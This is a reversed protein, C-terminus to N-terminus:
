LEIYDELKVSYIIKRIRKANMKEKLAIEYLDLQKKYLDKLELLNNVNDTKYDVITFLNDKVFLLDIVGSTLIKGSKLSEDYYNSPIEFYIKMERYVKDSLLLEDYIESSLYSFINDLSIMKIDEKKLFGKELMNDLENKLNKLDYKKIPLLEFIKHYTTGLTSSSIGNKLFKPFRLYSKKKKIDSVSLYRPIKSSEFELNIIDNFSDIDFNLKKNISEGLVSEDIVNANKIDIIINANSSYVKPIVLSLDRLVDGDKHRLLCAIIIDLYSKVDKLYFESIVKKDGMKSSIKTVMSQLNSSYGTIIIKEKSRTLAVYLIRLEESLMKNKEIEKFVMIPVSEYKLKYYNDKINCVFGLYDNIMFDSRLDKFNFNKGTESLFVYPYELGKSKHITTILVNDGKSLPNIGELSDKNLLVSELYTIFSHLTSNKKGEFSVAHKIMQELNKQRKVGGKFASLVPIINYEKYIKSLLSSINITYSAEKLMNIKELEKKVIINNSKLLSEYLFMNKNDLRVSTIVDFDIGIVDSTLVSLLSIDDYLNDIVKLFNIILKVEYNDFYELSSEMYVSINKKNLARKFIESNTLSRLLIVIDSAKISRFSGTKNDYVKEGSNLLEHIKEAVIIAEKETKSIDDEKEEDKKGDILIVETNLNDKEKFSAGLYLTEDEDYNVEGFNNTMTNEFIFNCFDLVEVRSRFNKKLTILMPFGNKSAEKKDNNFINADASRFRYISQKVDGVIFLNKGNKSIANFIVNQMNNTDQYEDILIEEFTSSYKEALPTKKKDKVLLDLCFHSIDSFSYSNIKKKEDLLKNKYNKVLKFLVNLADYTEKQEKNYLDDTIFKFENLNKRIDKKFEDRIVKYKIILSDDKHGKPTRLTDFSIVKLKKSLEDLSTVNLFNNIHNQEKILLDLVKDFDDKVNSLGEIIESYLSDYSKMKDKINKLLLEKYFNNNKKYNDLAKDLFENCFPVTDLFDSIKLILSRTIDIGGFFSLMDNYGTIEDFSSELIITLVKEKIIKEEESSLVDFDKDIGLKEFNDKVISGYFSDMTTINAKDILYIQNKLYTNNKNKEYAEKLKTKIRIKMEEAAAKTFTVILLSDISKKDLVLNLVRESLVATKGSGAAASVIVKGGRKKIALEQDLTWNPM